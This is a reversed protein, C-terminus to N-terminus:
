TIQEFYIGVIVDNSNKVLKSAFEASESIYDASDSSPATYNNYSDDTYVSKSFNVTNISNGGSSKGYGYCKGTTDMGTDVWIFLKLDGGLSKGNRIANVVAGGKVQTGDYNQLSMGDTMELTDVLKTNASNGKNTITGMIVALIVVFILAFVIEAITIIKKNM